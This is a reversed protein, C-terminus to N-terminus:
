TEGGNQEYWLYSGKLKFPPETRHEEARGASLIYQKNIRLILVRVKLMKRLLQLYEKIEEGSHKGELNIQNTDGGEIAQIIIKFDKSSQDKLEAISPKSSLSNKLYSNEFAEAKGGIIDGLNYIYARNSLM